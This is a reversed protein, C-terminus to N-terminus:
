KHLLFLEHFRQAIPGLFGIGVSVVAHATHNWSGSELHVPNITFAKDKGGVPYEPLLPPPM